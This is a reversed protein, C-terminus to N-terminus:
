RALRSGPSRFRERASASAASAAPLNLGSYLFLTGSQARSHGSDAMAEEAAGVLLEAFREAEEAVYGYAFGLEHLFTVSSRIQKSRKLASLTKRSKPLRYAVQSIGVSRHGAM